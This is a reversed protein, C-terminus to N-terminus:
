VLPPGKGNIFFRNRLSTYCTKLNLFHPLSINQDLSELQSIHPFIFFSLFDDHLYEPGPVMAEIQEIKQVLAANPLLETHISPALIYFGFYLTLLLAAFSFSKARLKNIFHCTTNKNM